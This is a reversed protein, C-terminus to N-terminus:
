GRSVFTVSGSDVVDMRSVITVSSSGVVDGLHCMHLVALTLLKVRTVWDYSRWLWCRGGRSMIILSSSGVVEGAHCLQLAALALLM